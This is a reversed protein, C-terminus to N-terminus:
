FMCSKYIGYADELLVATMGFEAYCDWQEEGYTAGNASPRMMKVYQACEEASREDSLYEERQGNGDGDQWVCAKLSSFIYIMILKDNGVNLLFM